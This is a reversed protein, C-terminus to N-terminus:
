RRRHLPRVWSFLQCVHGANDLGQKEASLKGQFALVLLPHGEGLSCIHLHQAHVLNSTRMVFSESSAFPVQKNKTFGNDPEICVATRRAHSLELRDDM